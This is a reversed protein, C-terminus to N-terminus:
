GTKPPAEEIVREGDKSYAVVAGDEREGYLTAGAAIQADLGAKIRAQWDNPWTEHWLPEDAM